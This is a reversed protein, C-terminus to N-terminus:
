RASTPMPSAASRREAGAPGAATSLGALASLVTAFDGTASAFAPRAGHRRRVPQAHQRRLRSPTRGQLALTLFVNNADYSLSPTLFAFNSTVGSYTGSVGGTANLITYTTSRPTAARSRGAGAGHRRQHHRTGTVNIRDSQGAANVEVVYTGGNQAFNGNVTLTGISNGPALTGGDAVPRRDHRQRGAHRRKM